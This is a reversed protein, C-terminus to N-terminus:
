QIIEVWKSRWEPLKFPDAYYYTEHAVKDDGFEMVTAM